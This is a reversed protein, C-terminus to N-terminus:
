VLGEMQVNAEELLIQAIKVQGKGTIMTTMEQFDGNTRKVISPKVSFLGQEIYQQKPQNYERGSKILFGKNRLWEFMKNRGLKVGHKEYMMKSFAGVNIAADSMSVVKGFQTYPLDKQQQKIVENKQREAELRKQQENKLNTALQILMDPNLLAQEITEPTMYAGHKKISPLVEDFVWKEFREAQSLKSNVILRYLNGENIFKKLQKRGLSDIVECFVVGDNRCHKNIADHPNKYGLKEAVNKAPFYEKDDTILIELEGFQEHKFRKTETEKSNSIGGHVVQIM